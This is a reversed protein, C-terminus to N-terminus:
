EFFAKMPHVTYSHALSRNTKPDFLEIDITTRGVPWKGHTPITGSFVIRGEHEAGDHKAVFALLEEPPMFEELAAEQMLKNGSRSRLVLRDWRSRVTDLRWAQRSTVMPCLNKSGLFHTRELVRDTHDSGVTVYDIGGSRFLAFEVEPTTDLGLVAIDAANTVLTPMVPFLMPIHAPPEVGIERLEALHEKINKGGRGTFGAGLARQLGVTIWSSDGVAFSIERIVM